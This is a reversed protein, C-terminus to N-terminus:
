ILEYLSVLAAPEKLVRPYFGHRMEVSESVDQVVLRNQELFSGFGKVTKLLFASGAVKGTVEEPAVQKFTLFPSCKRTLFM